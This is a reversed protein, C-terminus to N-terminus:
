TKAYTGRGDRLYYADIVGKKLLRHHHFDVSLLVYGAGNTAICVLTVATTRARTWGSDEQVCGCAFPERWRGLILQLVHM